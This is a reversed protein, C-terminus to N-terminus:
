GVSYAKKNKEEMRRALTALPFCLLFYLCGVGVFAPIYSMNMSSWSKATFMLDAGSIIAVTSTNKILNVVQNTLPPYIMRIAQPLIILRMTAGYTFGQSEAAETQGKPVGEIGSRIVEAIYAGHYVGVCIIATWFASIVLSKNLLPFGYYVVVFQILLPTNQYVEVYVRSIGRLLKNRTASLSGFIVGLLMALLLAGISIELTYLFGKAFQGFDAFFAQWRELAFPSM